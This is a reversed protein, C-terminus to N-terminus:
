RSSVNIRWNVRGPGAAAYNRPRPKKQKKEDEDDPPLPPAGLVDGIYWERFEKNQQIFQKRAPNPKVKDAYLALQAEEPSIAGAAILMAYADKRKKAAGTRIVANALQITRQAIVGQSTTLGPYPPINYYERAQQRARRYAALADSDYQGETEELYEAVKPHAALYEERLAELLEYDVRGDPGTAIERLNFYGTLEPDSNRNVYILQRYANDIAEKADRATFRRGKDDRGAKYWRDITEMRERFELSRKASEARLADAKKTEAKDREILLRKVDPKNNIQRRQEATLDTWKEGFMEAAYDDRLERLQESITMPSVRAGLFSFAFESLRGAMDAGERGPRDEYLARFSLPVYNEALKGYFAQETPRPFKDGMTDQGAIGFGATRMIPRAKWIAWSVLPDPSRQEVSRAVASVFPAWPLLSIDNGFVNRITMWNPATPDFLNTDEGRLENAAYTVAATLVFQAGVARRAIAGRKGPVFMLAPSMIQSRVLRGAVFFATELGTTRVNTTGTLDNVTQLHANIAAMWADNDRINKNLRIADQTMAARAVLLIDNFAQNANGFFRGVVPVAYISTKDATAMSEAVGTHALGLSVWFAETDQDDFGRRKMEASLKEFTRAQIARMPKRHGVIELLGAGLLQIALGPNRIAVVYAQNLLASLDGTLSVTSAISEVAAWPSQRYWEIWAGEKTSAALDKAIARPVLTEMKGLRARVLPQRTAAAYEAASRMMVAWRTTAAAEELMHRIAEFGDLIEEGPRINKMQSRAIVRVNGDIDKVVIPLLGADLESLWKPELNRTSAHEPAVKQLLANAERLHERRTHRWDLLANIVAAKAEQVEPEFARAADELLEDLNQNDLKSLKEEIDGLQREVQSTAINGNERYISLFDHYADFQRNVLRKSALVQGTKLFGRRLAAAIGQAKTKRRQVMDWDVRLLVNRRPRQPEVVVGEVVDYYDGDNEKATADFRPPPEPRFEELEAAAAAEDLVPNREPAPPEAPGATVPVPEPEPTAARAERDLPEAAPREKRRAAEKARRVLNPTPRAEQGAQEPQPRAQPEAAAQQKPMRPQPEDTTSRAILETIDIEGRLYAVADELTFRPGSRRPTSHFKGNWVAPGAPTTALAPNPEWGSDLLLQLAKTYLGPQGDHDVLTRGKVNAKFDAWAEPHQHFYLAYARSVFGVLEKGKLANPGKPTASLNRWSYPRDAKMGTVRSHMRDGAVLDVLTRIDTSRGRGDLSADSVLLRASLPSLRPDGFDPSEPDRSAKIGISFTSGAPPEEADITEAERAPAPEPEKPQAAAEPEQQAQPPQEEAPRSPFNRERWKAYGEQLVEQAPMQNVDWYETKAGGKWYLVVSTVDPEQGNFIRQLLARGEDDIQDMFFEVTRGAEPTATERYGHAHPKRIEKFPTLENGDSVSLTWDGVKTETAHPLDLPETRTDPTSIPPQQATAPTPEQAPEAPAQPEQPAQQDAAPEPRTRESEPGEPAPGPAKPPEPPPPETGSTQPGADPPPQRLDAETVSITALTEELKEDAERAANNIAEDAQAKAQNLWGRISESLAALQARQVRQAAAKRRDIDALRKVIGAKKAKPTVAVGTKQLVGDRLAALHLAAMMAEGPDAAALRHKLDHVTDVAYQRGKAAESSPRTIAWAAILMDELSHASFPAIKAVADSIDALAAFALESVNDHVSYLADKGVVIYSPRYTRATNGQRVTYSGRARLMEVTARPLNAQPPAGKEKPMLPLADTRLGRPTIREATQPTPMWKGTDGIFELEVGEPTNPSMYPVNERMTRVSLAEQSRVATINNGTASITLMPALQAKHPMALPREPPEPSEEAMARLVRAEASIERAEDISTVNFQELWTEYSGPEPPPKPEAPQEAAPQAEPQAQEQPKAPAGQSAPQRAPAPGEYRYRVYQAIPKNGPAGATLGTGVYAKLSQATWLETQEMDAWPIRGQRFDDVTFVQVDEVVAEHWQKTDPDQFRIREGPKANIFAGPRRVTSTRKGNIIANATTRLQKGQETPRLVGPPRLYSFNMPVVTAATTKPAPQPQAPASPSEPQQPATTADTQQQAPKPQDARRVRGDPEVIWVEKGAALAKDIADKTGPSAGDWFAIIVESNDVVTQNRLMGAKKGLKAWNAPHVTVQLGRKKAASQATKDVGRANGSVIHAKEPMLAVLQKVLETNPFDRSGVVAYTTERLPLQDITQPKQPPEDKRVRVEGDRPAEPAAVPETGRHPLPTGEVIKARIAEAEIDRARGGQVPAQGTLDDVAEDIDDALESAVRGRERALYDSGSGLKGPAVLTDALTWEDGGKRTLRKKDLSEEAFPAIGVRSEATAADFTSPEPKGRVGTETALDLQSKGAAGPSVFDPMRPTFVVTIPRDPPGLDSARLANLILHARDYVREKQYFGLTYTANPLGSYPGALEVVVVLPQDTSAAAARIAEVAREAFVTDLEAPDVTERLAASADRGTKGALADQIEQRQDTFFPELEDIPKTQYDAVGDFVDAAFGQRRLTEAIYPQADPAQGARAQRTGSYHYNPLVVVTPRQNASVLAAVASLAEHLPDSTILASTGEEDLLHVTQRQPTTWGTKGEGALPMAITVDKGSDGKFTERGTVPMVEATEGTPPQNIRTEASLRPPPVFQSEAIDVSGDPHVVLRPYEIDDTAGNQWSRLADFYLELIEARARAFAADDLDSLQEDILRDVDRTIAEAIESQRMRVADYAQVTMEGFSDFEIDETVRPAELMDLEDELRSIAQDRQSLLEDLETYIADLRRRAADRTRKNLRPNSLRARLRDAESLLPRLKAAFDARVKDIRAQIESRQQELERRQTAHPERYQYEREIPGPPVDAKLRKIVQDPLGAAKGEAEIRARAEDPEMRGTAVERQYVALRRAATRTTEYDTRASPLLDKELSVEDAPLGYREAVADMRAAGEEPSLIGRIVQGRISRLEARGKELPLQPEQPAPEETAPRPEAAAAPQAEPEQAAAATRPRASLESEEIGHEDLIRRREALYESESINGRRAEANLAAIRRQAAELAAARDAQDQYRRPEAPRGETVWWYLRRNIEEPSLGQAKWRATWESFERIFVEADKIPSNFGSLLRAVWTIAQSPKVRGSKVDEEIKRLRNAIQQGGFEAIERPRPLPKQGTLSAFLDNRRESPSLDQLRWQESLLAVAESVEDMTRPQANYKTFLRALREDAQERSIKGSELDQQIRYLDRVFQDQPVLAQRTTIRAVVPTGIASGAGGGVIQGTLGAVLIVWPNDDVGLASTVEQAIETGVGAGVAFPVAAKPGVGEGIARGTKLTISGARRLINAADSRRATQQMAQQAAELAEREGVAELAERTLKKEAGELAAERLLRGGATKVVKAGLKPVATTGGSAFTLPDFLIATGIKLGEDGPEEQWEYYKRVSQYPYRSGLQTDPGAMGEPGHLTYDIGARLAIGPEELLQAGPLRLLGAAEAAKMTQQVPALLSLLNFPLAATSKAREKFPRTDTQGPLINFPDITEWIWAHVSETTSLARLAKSVWGPIKSDGGKAEIERAQAQGAPPAPPKLAALVDRHHEYRVPRRFPDWTM